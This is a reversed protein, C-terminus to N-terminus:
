IAPVFGGKCINEKEHAFKEQEFGQPTPEYPLFFDGKVFIKRKMLLKRAWLGPSDTWLAPFFGGKCINEKEHAFKEQEYGQPTPEYPLFFDGKVSTKSNMLVNKKSM